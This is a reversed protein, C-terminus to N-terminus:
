NEAVAIHKIMLLLLQLLIAAVVCRVALWELRSLFCSLIHMLQQLPQLLILLQSLLCVDIKRAAVGSFDVSAVTVIVAVAIAGVAFVMLDVALVFCTQLKAVAFCCDVAICTNHLM